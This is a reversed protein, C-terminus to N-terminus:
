WLKYPFSTKPWKGVEWEEPQAQGEAPPLLASKGFCVPARRRARSLASLMEKAGRGPHPQECSIQIRYTCLNGGPCNPLLSTDTTIEPAHPQPSLLPSHVESKWAEVGPNGPKPVVSM